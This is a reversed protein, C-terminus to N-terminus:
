ESGKLNHLIEEFKSIFDDAKKIKSLVVVVRTNFSVKVNAVGFFFNFFSRSYSLESIDKVKYKSIRKSIIGKTIVLELENYKEIVEYKTLGIPLGFKCKRRQLLVEM